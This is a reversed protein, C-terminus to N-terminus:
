FLTHSQETWSTCIILWDTNAVQQSQQSFLYASFTELISIKYLLPKSLFPQFFRYRPETWFFPNEETPRPYKLSVSLKSKDLQAPPVSEKKDPASGIISQGTQRPQTPSQATPVCPPKFVSHCCNRPPPKFYYNFKMQCRTSETWINPLM